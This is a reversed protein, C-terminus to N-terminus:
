TGSCVTNSMTLRRNLQKVLWLSIYTVYGYILLTISLTVSQSTFFVTLKLTQVSKSLEFLYLYRIFNLLLLFVFAITNYDKVQIPHPSNYTTILDLPRQRNCWWGCLLGPPACWGNNMTYDSSRCVKFALIFFLKSRLHVFEKQPLVLIGDIVSSACISSLHTLLRPQQWPLFQIPKQHCM